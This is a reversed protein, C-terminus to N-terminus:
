SHIPDWKLKGHEVWEPMAEEFTKTLGQFLLMGAEPVLVGRNM